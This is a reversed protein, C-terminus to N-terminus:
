RESGLTDDVICGDLMMIRRDCQRALEQDHTVMIITIGLTRNLARFLAMIETATASDLSGTPEDALLLRPQGILARAIAVRQRQGGSLADPKHWARDALGLRELMTLAPARRDAKRVGRYLLPLAVNEWATLRPLLQFSQFVFGHIENRIRAAETRDLGAVERGALQISGANPRDLLGILNMLTSKGSGSPGVIACFEGAEITVTIDRLVPILNTDSRYTKKVGVLALM